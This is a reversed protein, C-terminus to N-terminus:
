FGCVQNILIAFNVRETFNRVLLKNKLCKYNKNVNTFVCMKCFAWSPAANIDLSLLLTIFAFLRISFEEGM